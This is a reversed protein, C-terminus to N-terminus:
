FVLQSLILFATQNMTPSLDHPYFRRKFAILVMSMEKDFNGNIEIKYGFEKLMRQIELVKSGKDGEKVLVKNNDQEQIDPYIGISNKALIKWNFYQGPDDKRDPAIDSHAVINYDAIKYKKILNKCLTILSNMQAQPFTNIELLHNPNVLEIGISCDNIKERGRWYSIGAHWARKEDDVLCYIEGNQAILYHCSVKSEPNCLREISALEEMNTAHIVVMDINSKREDFNPSKYTHSIKLM